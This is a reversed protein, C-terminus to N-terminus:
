LGEILTCGELGKALQIGFGALEPHTIRPFFMRVIEACKFGINNQKINPLLLQNINGM